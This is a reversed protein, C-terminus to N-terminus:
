EVRDAKDVDSAYLGGENASLYYKSMVIKDRRYNKGAHEGHMARGKDEEYSHGEDESKGIIQNRQHNAGSVHGKGPQIGEPKPERSEASEKKVEAEKSSAAEVACSVSWVHSPEGVSRQGRTRKRRTVAGIVPGDRQQDRSEPADRCRDVDDRCHQAHPTGTHREAAHRQQGPQIQDHRPQNDQGYRGESRGLDHEGDITIKAPMEKVSLGSAGCSKPHVEKPDEPM